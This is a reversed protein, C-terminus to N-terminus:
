PRCYRASRQVRQLHAILRRAEPIVEDQPHSQVLRTLIRIAAQCSKLELYSKASLLRAAAEFRGGPSSKLLHAVAAAAAKWEYAMYHTEAVRYHAEEVRPDRPFRQVLSQYDRRAEPLKGALRHITARAFLEAATAPEAQPKARVELILRSVEIRIQEVNEKLSQLQGKLGQEHSKSEQVEAGLNEVRGKLRDVDSVMRELQLGFRASSQLLVTRAQPLIEKLEALEKQLALLGQKHMSETQKELAKVRKELDDGEKRSTFFM